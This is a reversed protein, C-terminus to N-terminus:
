SGLHFWHVCELATSEFSVVSTPVCHGASRDNGFSLQQEQQLSSSLLIATCNTRTIWFLTPETGQIRLFLFADFTWAISTFQLPSAPPHHHWSARTGKFNHNHTHTHLSVATYSFERRGRRHLYTPLYTPKALRYGLMPTQTRRLASEWICWCLTFTWSHIEAVNIPQLFTIDHGSVYHMEFYATHIVCLEPTCQINHKLVVHM